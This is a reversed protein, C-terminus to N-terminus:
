EHTIKASYLNGYTKIKDIFRSRDDEITDWWYDFDSQRAFEISITINKKIM